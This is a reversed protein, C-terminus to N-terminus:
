ENRHRRNMHDHARDFEAKSIAGDGDRDMRDFRREFRANSRMEDVSVMGDGDRDLREVMQQARKKAQEVVMAEIEAASLLGDGDVDARELHATRQAMMEARTILGDGDRDLQGFEVPDAHRAPKASAAVATLALAGCLAGAVLKTRKM